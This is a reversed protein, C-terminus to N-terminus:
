MPTITSVVVPLKQNASTSATRITANSPAAICTIVKRGSSPRSGKFVM